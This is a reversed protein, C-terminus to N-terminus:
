LEKLIMEVAEPIAKEVPETLEMVVDPASIEGPQCGVIIVEM